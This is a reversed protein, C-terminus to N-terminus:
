ALNFIVQTGSNDFYFSTEYLEPLARRVKEQNHPEVFLLLFGGGGAGLLKGGIAGARRAKEYAEDVFLNTIKSSLRRKLMWGEHLLAGFESLGGGGTLANVGRGVLSKLKELYDNNEGSKTREIQEFLIHHAERQMGTYFLMLCGELEKLRSQNLIIRSANVKKNPLFELHQLGGLSCAYQDQSGVNEKILEQEVYVAEAAVQDQSAAEGKLAHLGMLLGATASSSSGLGTRAPLESLYHIEIGEKFGLFRLCERASPHKIEDISQVSEVQSYHIRLRYEVFKTIPSVTIINYKNISAALTAGGYRCFYSPYDTGGGLFSIRLPTKTIIM